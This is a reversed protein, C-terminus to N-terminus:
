DQELEGVGAAALTQGARSTTRRWWPAVVPDAAPAPIAEIHELFWAHARRTALFGGPGHTRFTMATRRNGLPKGRHAQRPCGIFDLGAFRDSFASARRVTAAPCRPSLM